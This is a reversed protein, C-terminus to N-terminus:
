RLSSRNITISEIAESIQSIKRYAILWGAAEKRIVLRTQSYAAPQIIKQQCFCRDESRPNETLPRAHTTIAHIIPTKNIGNSNATKAVM